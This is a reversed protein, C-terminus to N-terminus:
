SRGGRRALYDNLSLPAPGRPRPPQVAPAPRSPPNVELRGITIHVEPTTDIEAAMTTRERSAQSRITSIAEPRRGSPQPMAAPPTLATEATTGSQNQRDGLLRSVLTELDPLPARIANGAPSSEAVPEHHRQIPTTAALVPNAIAAVSPKPPLSRHAIELPTEEPSPSRSLRPPQSAADAEPRPAQRAVSASRVPKEAVIPAPLHSEATRGVPRADQVPAEYGQRGIAPTAPPSEFKGTEAVSFDATPTAYPLAARSKIQPALGLSRVALQHLFGSM